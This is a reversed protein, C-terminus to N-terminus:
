IHKSICKCGSSVLHNILDKQVQEIYELEDNLSSEDDNMREQEEETNDIGISQRVNKNHSELISSVMPTIIYNFETYEDM